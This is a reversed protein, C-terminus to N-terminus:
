DMSQERAASVHITFSKLPHQIPRRQLDRVRHARPALAIDQVHKTSSSSKSALEGCGQCGIDDARRGRKCELGGDFLRAERKQESVKRGYQLGRFLM